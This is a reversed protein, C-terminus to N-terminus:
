LGDLWRFAERAASLSEAVRADGPVKGHHALANREDFLDGLKNYLLRNEESLSQGTVAKCVKGFLAVTPRTNRLALELLDEAEPAVRRRLSEKIKVECAVAAILLARPRDPPKADSSYYSADALLAEALMPAHPETLAEAIQHVQDPQIVQIREVVRLGGSRELYKDVPLVENADLDILDGWGIGEVPEGAIGLWHQRGEVRARENLDTVVESAVEYLEDLHDRLSSLVKQGAPGATRIDVGRADSAGVQSEAAVEVRIVDIRAVPSQGGMSAIARMSASTPTPAPEDPPFLDPQLLSAANRTAERSPFSVTILQAGRRTEIRTGLLERAILLGRVRFHFRARVAAM